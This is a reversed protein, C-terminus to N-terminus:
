MLQLGGTPIVLPYHQKLGFMMASCIRSPPLMITYLNKNYVYKEICDTFSLSAPTSYLIYFYHPGAHM